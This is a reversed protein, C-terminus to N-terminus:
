SSFSPPNKYMLLNYMNIIYSESINKPFFRVNYIAGDLGKESGAIVFDSPNYVPFNNDFQFSTKLQGNIFLDARQSSYNIVFNNWKQNPIHIEYPKGGNMNNTFYVMYKGMKNSDLLYTIKVKGDGLDFISTENSYGVFNTPQDKLYIWMSFAYNDRYINKASDSVLENEPILLENSNAIVFSKDLFAGKELLAVSNKNDIFTLLKPILIYLLILLIELFFFVYIPKETIKLEKLFYKVFDIALCPIYFILNIIFGTTGTYSKFHNSLMFFIIALGFLLILFYIANIIINIWSFESINMKSYFYLIAGIVIVGVVLGMVNTSIDNLVSFYMAYGVLLVISFGYAYFLKTNTKDDKSSYYLFITVLIITSFLIIYKFVLDPSLDTFFPENNPKPSYQFASLM